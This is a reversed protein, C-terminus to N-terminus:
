QALKAAAPRDAFLVCNSHEQLYSGPVDPTISGDVSAVVANAKRDDPVTVVIAKSALIHRMSM